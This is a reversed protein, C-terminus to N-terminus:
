AIQCNNDSDPYGLNLCGWGYDMNAKHASEKGGMENNMICQENWLHAFGSPSGRLTFRNPQAM